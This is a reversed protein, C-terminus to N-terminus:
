MLESPKKANVLDDKLTKRTERCKIMDDHSKFYLVSTFLPKETSLDKFYISYNDNEIKYDSIVANCIGLIGYLELEVGFLDMKAATDCIFFLHNGIKVNEDFVKRSSGVFLGNLSDVRQRYITPRNCILSQYLQEVLCATEYDIDDQPLVFNINLFKEIALVKKWFQLTKADFSKLGKNSQPHVFPFGSMKISGDLFANYLSAAEVLDSVCKANKLQLSVTCQMTEAKQDVMFRLFFPADPASEFKAVHVSQNPVRTIKLTTKFESTQFEVDFPPPFPQPLAYFSNQMLRVDKFPNQVFDKTPINQGNVVIFEESKPTFRLQQQANYMYALIDKYSYGDRLVEKQAKTPAFILDSISMNGSEATIYCTGDKCPSYKLGDPLSKNMHALLPAPIQVNQADKKEFIKEFDVFM